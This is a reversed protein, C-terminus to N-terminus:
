IKGSPNQWDNKCKACFLLDNLLYAQVACLVACPGGNLQILATQEQSSFLFGKM